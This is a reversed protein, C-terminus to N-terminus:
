TSNLLLADLSTFHEDCDCGDCQGGNEGQVNLMRGRKSRWDLVPSLRLAKCQEGVICPKTNTPYPDHGRARAYQNGHDDLTRCSSMKSQEDRIQLRKVAAKPM